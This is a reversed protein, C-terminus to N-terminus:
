PAITYQAHESKQQPHLIWQEFHKIKADSCVHVDIINNMALVWYGDTAMLLVGYGDIVMLIWQYCEIVMWLWWYGEIVSWYGDIVM